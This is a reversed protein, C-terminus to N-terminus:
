ISINNIRRKNLPTNIIDHISWGNTLKKRITSKNLDSINSLILALESKNYIQGEYEFYKQHSNRTFNNDCFYSKNELVELFVDKKRKLYLNSNDYIYHYIRNIIINGGFRLSRINNDREKYRKDYITENLNCNNDLIKNLKDLFEITGIFSITLSDNSSSICGDGDFYGRIFDKQLINPIEPFKIKFTKAQMCGHKVLNSVLVKSNIILRLYNKRIKSLPRGEPYLYKVFINLIEKDKMHLTIDVYFLKENIYGDAFLFGLLYAKEETDIIKFFDENLKYKRM